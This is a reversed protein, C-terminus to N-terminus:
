KPGFHFKYVFGANASKTLFTGNGDIIQSYNLFCGFRESITRYITGGVQTYIVNLERFDQNNEPYYLNGLGTQQNFWADLYWNSNSYMLKGSFTYSSPVPDLNHNYGGQCQFYFGMPLSVQYVLKGIFQHAQQGIALGSQTNYNSAPGSYGGALSIQHKDSTSKMIRKKLYVGFDQFNSNIFPLTAIVDFSSTLGYEAFVSGQGFTREYTIPGFSGVYTDATQFGGSLAIDLNNKGKYFGDIPGQGFCPLISFILLVTLTNRM